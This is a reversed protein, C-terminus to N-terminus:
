HAGRRAKLLNIVFLVLAIALLVHIVAGGASLAFGLVWLILLIFVFAWLM